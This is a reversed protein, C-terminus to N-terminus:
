YIQGRYTPIQRTANALEGQVVEVSRDPPGGGPLSPRVVQIGRGFADRLARRFICRGCVLGSAEKLCLRDESGNTPNLM